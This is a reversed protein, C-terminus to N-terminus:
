DTLYKQIYRMVDLSEFYEAIDFCDIARKPFSQGVPVTYTKKWDGGQEIMKKFLQLENLEAALMLPTYRMGNKVVEINPNAGANLLIRAIQRMSSPKPFRAQVREFIADMM